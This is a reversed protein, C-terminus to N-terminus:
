VKWWVVVGIGWGLFLLLNAGLFWFHYNIFLTFWPGENIVGIVIHNLSFFIFDSQMFCVQISKSLFFSVISFIKITHMIWLKLFHFLIWWNPHCHELNMWACTVLNFTTPNNHKTQTHSKNPPLHNISLSIHLCKRSPM